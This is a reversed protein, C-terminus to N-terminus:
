EARLAVSAELRGARRAPVYCALLAVAMLLASVAVLTIPDTPGVEFLLAGLYRTLALSAALGLAVGAAASRLGDGFVLRLIDVRTAGLAVRVGIERTRQAATYSIVGYIGIASLTLALGAFIGLLVLAFRSEALTDAVYADMLRITHVPRNGGLADIERRIPSALLLPDGAARVVVAMDFLAYEHYPLYVQPRGADRLTEALVHGVVGIVTLTPANQRDALHLTRGIPDGGPWAARAFAEDVVVVRRQHTLDEDTFDRGAHLRIGMTEFYSPLTTHAEVQLERGDVVVPQVIKHSEFPLPRVASVSVVGPLAQIREMASRYFQWKRDYERFASPQIMAQVTLVGTSDFGTPVARLGALTRLMLGAGALLVIALAVETVVLAARLRGHRMGAGRSSAKLTHQVDLRTGQWAPVLSFLLSCALTSLLAFALVRGDLPLSELGPLTEPRLRLLLSEAWPVTLLGLGGGLVGILLGETALQRVLRWRGAGLASRVALERARGSARALLLNALNASAILLVFMVAGMLALLAPRAARATDAQLPEVHLRLPARAYRDAHEDTLRRGLAGLEDRAAALSADPALKALTTVIRADPSDRFTLPLWLDVQSPIDSDPTVLLRLGRPVVGAVRVRMNNVLIVSDVIGSDGGYRRQWLEESIAVQLVADPTVDRGTVLRGRLPRVGLLDLFGDTASVAAVREMPQQGDVSGLNGNIVAVGEVHSLTGAHAQLAEIEALSLTPEAARTAGDARLMVLRGADAYPLPRLMVANVVTFMATTAGVGLALTVVALAAFGRQRALQRVGFRVDQILSSMM